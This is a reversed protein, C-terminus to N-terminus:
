ILSRGALYGAAYANGRLLSVMKRGLEEERVHPVRKTVPMAFPSGLARGASM